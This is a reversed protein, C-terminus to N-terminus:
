EVTFEVTDLVAGNEDRLEVKWSGANGYLTKSSWTRWRSGERLPLEVSGMETEGFYWVFSVTTDASIDGAELFCYIKKTSVSYTDVTGVPERDEISGAIVLREISFADATGTLVAISAIGSLVMIMFMILYKKM